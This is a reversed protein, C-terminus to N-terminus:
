MIGRAFCLDTLRLPQFITVTARIIQWEGHADKLQYSGVDQDGKDLTYPHIGQKVVTYFYTQPIEVMLESWRCPYRESQFQWAPLFQFYPSTVTFTYDIISGEKAGPLTFKMVTRDVSQRDQFIDKKDLKVETVQGNELNYTSASVKGLTESEDDLHFLSVYITAVDELANKNLIKVRRHRQFEYSFRSHENGAFRVQGIDALIVAGSSDTTSSSNPALDVASVPTLERVHKDQALCRPGWTCALFFLIITLRVFPKLNM